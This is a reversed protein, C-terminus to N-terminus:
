GAVEGNWTGVAVLGFGDLRDQDGDSVSTLWTADVWARIADEGGELRLFYVSGAPALRRTPKPTKKKFDWGSVTEARGVAAAVLQASVGHRPELLWRPRWGGEFVGPTALVVRCARDRVVADVITQPCSPLPISSRRWEVIRREGGLPALGGAAIPADTAVAMALRAEGGSSDRRSFELGRTSFLVGEESAGTEPSIGVHTRVDVHLCDIGLQDPLDTWVSPRELWDAFCEWTWFRPVRTSPKQPKSSWPLGVPLLGEPLDSAAGEPTAVPELPEIRLRGHDEDFGAADAPRPGFLSAIQGAGDLRVLLPGLISHGLVSAPAAAFRGTADLGARTRVGGAITSPFPFPLTRAVSGGEDTFPRGDRVILPDRPEVIWTSLIDTM